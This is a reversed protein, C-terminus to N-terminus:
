ATRVTFDTSLRYNNLDFQNDSAVTVAAFGHNHRNIRLWPPCLDCLCGQSWCFTENHWMDAEGHGSTQHLHGILATHKTRLFLGRAPNVPSSITRGTEHGHLMPLAGACIPQDDVREIGLREFDLINHLQIHEVNWLEPAKNFIYKDLRNEHNGLKYIIRSKRFEGRMWELFQRVADIESKFDRQKPDKEWRSINYFDAIDGLLVVVDPKLKKGYKIAADIAEKSHYPIHCDSLSLVKCPGDIQVPIWPEAASPPCEPKWGAQGNPRKVDEVAVHRHRAGHNGRAKRVACRAAELSPFRAKNEDYLKRALTKTPTDPYKRCLKAALEKGTPPKQPM